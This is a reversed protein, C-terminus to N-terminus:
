CLNRKGSHAIDLSLQEGRSYQNKDGKLHPHILTGDLPSHVAPIGAMGSGGLLIICAEELHQRQGVAHSTPM